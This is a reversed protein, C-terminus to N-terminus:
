LLGLAISFRAQPQPIGKPLMESAKLQGFEAARQSQQRFKLKSDRRGTVFEIEVVSATIPVAASAASLCL